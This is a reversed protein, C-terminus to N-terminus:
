KRPGFVTVEQLFARWYGDREKARAYCNGTSSVFFLFFFVAPRINSPAYTSGYSNERMLSLSTRLFVKSWSALRFALDLTKTQDSRFLPRIWPSIALACNRFTQSLIPSTSWFLGTWMPPPPPPLPSFFLKTKFVVVLKGKCETEQFEIPFFSFFYRLLLECFASIEPPINKCIWVSILLTYAWITWFPNINGKTDNIVEPFVTAIWYALFPAKLLQM